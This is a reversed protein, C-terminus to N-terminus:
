LWPRLYYNLHFLNFRGTKYSKRVATHKWCRIQFSKQETICRRNCTLWLHGNKIRLKGNSSRPKWLAEDWESISLRDAGDAGPRILPTRRHSKVNINRILFSFHVAWPYSLLLAKFYSFM